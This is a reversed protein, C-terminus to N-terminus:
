TQPIPRGQRDYQDIRLPRAARLIEVARGAMAPHDCHAAVVVGEERQAETMSGAAGGWVAGIVVGAVAAVVTATVVMATSAGLVLTIVLGLAAGVVAIVGALLVVRTFVRGAVEADRGRAPVRLAPEVGGKPPDDTMTRSQITVRGEALGAARLSRAAEQAAPLAAFVAMVNFPALDIEEPPIVESWRWRGEDSSM